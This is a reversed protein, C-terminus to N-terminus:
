QESKSQNVSSWDIVENNLNQSISVPGTWNILQESKSQNVSFWDTVEKNLNQSISVPGPKSQNVNKLV